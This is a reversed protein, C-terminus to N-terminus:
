AYGRKKAREVRAVYEIARPPLPKGAALCRTITGEGQNYASAVLRHDYGFQQRLHHLDFAALMVNLEPELLNSRLGHWYTKLTKQVISSDAWKSQSIWKVLDYARVLKIQLLGTAGTKPNTALPHFQSEVYAQSVIWSSPVGFIHAWKRALTRATNPYEVDAKFPSGMISAVPDSVPFQLNCEPDSAQIDSAHIFTTLLASILIACPINTKM